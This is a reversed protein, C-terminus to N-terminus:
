RGASVFELAPQLVKVTKAAAVDTHCTRVAYRRIMEASVLSRHCFRADAEFCLLACHREQLMEHLDHLAADQTKLYAKFGKTYLSWDGNQKYLNRVPKPCGLAHLHTYEIGNKELIGNLATKSFGPKRSIPMERIDVIKNIGYKDLMLLFQEINLGEYGVTYLIKEDMIHQMIAGSGWESLGVM